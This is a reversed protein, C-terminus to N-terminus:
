KALLQKVSMAMRRISAYTCHAALFLNTQTPV